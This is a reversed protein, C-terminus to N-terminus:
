PQNFAANAPELRFDISNTFHPVAIESEPSHALGQIGIYGAAVYANALSSYLLYIGSDAAAINCYLLQRIIVKSPIFSCVQKLNLTFAKSTALSQNVIVTQRLSM